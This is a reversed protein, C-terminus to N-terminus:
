QHDVQYTLFHVLNALSQDIFFGSKESRNM